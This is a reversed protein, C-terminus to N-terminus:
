TPEAIAKRAQLYGEAILRDHILWVSNRSISLQKALAQSAQIAM